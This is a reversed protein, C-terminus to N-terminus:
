GSGGPTKAFGFLLAGFFFGASQKNVAKPLCQIEKEAM